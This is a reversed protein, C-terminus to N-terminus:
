EINVTIIFYSIINTSSSSETDKIHGKNEHFLVFDQSIHITSFPKNGYM